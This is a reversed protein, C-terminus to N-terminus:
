EFVIAAYGVADPAPSVDYSSAHKLLRANKVRGKLAHLLCSVAGLGCMSINHERVTRWLREPSLQLIENIALADQKEIYEKVSMGPPPPDGYSPGAHTFDTSAILVVDKGRVAKAIKEGADRAVAPDSSPVYVPVFQFSRSIHLLFPLQMGIAHEDSHVDCNEKLGIKEALRRNVKAIGLVTQFDETTIVAEPFGVHDGGIIIFTEPFGDSAIARYVHAAVPGSYEYGAHPVIAGKIKGVRKSNLAPPAGPGLRHRYCQEILSVLQSRERVVTM